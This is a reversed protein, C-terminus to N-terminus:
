HPQPWRAPEAPVRLLEEFAPALTDGEGDVWAHARFEDDERNVGIVIERPDGQAIRWRQLVVARELCTAPLRRLVAHVGHEAARPLRYPPEVALDALHGNQLQRRAQLVARRAWFAGRWTGLNTLRALNM